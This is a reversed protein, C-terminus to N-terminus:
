PAPPPENDDDIVLGTSTECNATSGGVGGDDSTFVVRWSVNVTSDNVDFIEDSALGTAPSGDGNSTDVTHPSATGAPIDVSEQYVLTGGDAGCEGDTYLSFQVTGDLNSDGASTVTASDNPTWNQATSTTTTDAVLFCETTTNTFEDPSAYNTLTAKAAFCYRGAALPGRIGTQGTANVTASLACRKGDTDGPSDPDCATNSLTVASGVQNTATSTCGGTPIPGCLYFAVTGLPDAPNDAGTVQVTALDTVATGPTVTNPANSSAQTTLNPECRAFQGLVMDHLEANGAASARTNVLFSSFCADVKLATLNLGGEFFNTPLFQNAPGSSQQVVWPSPTAEDNVTACVDDNTADECADNGTTLPELTCVSTFCPSTANGPGVWEYVAIEAKPGFASIILIDGPICTSGAPPNPGCAGPESGGLSVNGAKHVGTFPCGAGASCTGTAPNRKIENQFFWFAINASGNNSFRDAGFYLVSDGVDVGGASVTAEYEAAYADTIDNKPPSPKASAWKWSNVDNDDKTGGKLIDDQQSQSPDKVFSFPDATTTGAPPTYTPAFVCSGPPTSSPQSAKCILDWDELATPQPNVATSANKDLQFIGADHVAMASPIAILAVIATCAGIGIAARLWRSRRSRGLIRSM